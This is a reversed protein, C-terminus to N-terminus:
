KHAVPLIKRKIIGAKCQTEPNTLIPAANLNCLFFESWTNVLSAIGMTINISSSSITIVDGTIIFILIMLGARSLIHYCWFWGSIIPVAIKIIM